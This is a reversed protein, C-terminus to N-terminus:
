NGVLGITNCNSLNNFLMKLGWVFYFCFSSNELTKIGICTKARLSVSLELYDVSIKM